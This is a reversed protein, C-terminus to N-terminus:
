AYMEEIQQAYKAAIPKRKLKGTPTLEDGDPGWATPLLVYRKVQESRSLRDNARQVATEVEVLIEPIAVVEALNSSDVGARRAHVSAADPDLCILATVYNRRDGVSVVQAILSSEGKIASEINAPSMNKGSSSIMIEKKRDVITVYGDDDITAIDGTHLWGDGDITEATEKPQKRYNVFNFPSKILLEGDSDLRVEVGPLPKGATGTKYVDVRNFICLSAESSGYAEIFPIGIARYFQALEPTAPAGGVIASQLRDLGLRALIPNISSLGASHEEQLAALEAPALSEGLSEDTARAIRLGLEITRKAAGHEDEPLAEILGEIGVQMKEFVRPVSLIADPRADAFHQGAEAFNPCVTITTGYSMAMYHVTARGGAHAMPLFSVVSERTVPIGQDLARQSEMVGAHSWQAAKPPGTTGSTFILTVLDEAQITRWATEFDFDPSGLAEVESLTHVSGDVEGDVVIIAIPYETIAAVAATIKPLFVQQTAVIKADSQRLQHEIQEVSSSAFIAFPVAGLHLAAYDILHLEITNPMLMAMTDSRGLGLASLGAAVTQVREGFEAWTMSADGGKTRIAIKEPTQAVRRQFAEAVTASALPPSTTLDTQPPAIKTM